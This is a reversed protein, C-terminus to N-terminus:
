CREVLLPPSLIQLHLFRIAWLKIKEVNSARIIVEKGRCDVTAYHQSLWDMGLIVDFNLVDVSILDVPLDRGENLVSCNSLFVDSDLSDSLPTAVSLTTCDRPSGLLDDM